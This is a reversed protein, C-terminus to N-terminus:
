IYRLINEKNENVYKSQKIIEEPVNHTDQAAMVMSVGLAATVDICELIETKSVSEKNKQCFRKM